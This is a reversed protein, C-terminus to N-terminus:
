GRRVVFSVELEVKDERKKMGIVFNPQSKGNQISNGKRGKERRKRGRSREKVGGRSLALLFSGKDPKQESKKGLKRGRTLRGRKEKTARGPAHLRHSIQM